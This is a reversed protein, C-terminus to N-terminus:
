TVLKLIEQGKFFFQLDTNLQNMQNKSECVSILSRSLQDQKKLSANQNFSWTDECLATFYEPPPPFGYTFVFACNSLNILVVEWHHTIGGGPARLKRFAQHCKM